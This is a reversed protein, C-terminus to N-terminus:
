IQFFIFLDALEHELFVGLVLPSTRKNNHGRAM